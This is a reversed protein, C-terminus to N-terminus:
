WLRYNYLNRCEGKKDIINTTSGQIDKSYFYESQGDTYRITAFVNSADGVINQSTKEGKENTTYLLLSGEYYYNITETKEETDSVTTDIKKIRQGSGNYENHQRYKDKGNRTDAAASPIVKVM